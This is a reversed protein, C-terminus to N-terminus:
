ERIHHTAVARARLPKSLQEIVEPMMAQVERTAEEPTSGENVRSRYLANYATILLRNFEDQLPDDLDSRMVPDMMALFRKTDARTVRMLINRENPDPGGTGFEVVWWKEGHPNPVTSVGLVISNQAPGELWEPHDGTNLFGRLDAMCRLTEIPQTTDGTRYYLRIDKEDLLSTACIMHAASVDMLLNEPRAM